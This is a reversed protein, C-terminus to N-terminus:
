KSKSNIKKGENLVESAKSLDKEDFENDNNLDYKQTSLFDEMLKIVEKLNSSEFRKGTKEYILIFM